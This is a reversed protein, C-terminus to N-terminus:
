ISRLRFDPELDDCYTQAIRDKPWDRFLGGMTIGTAERRGIPEHNVLLIRPCDAQVVRGRDKM